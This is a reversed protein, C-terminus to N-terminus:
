IEEVVINTLETWEEGGPLVNSDDIICLTGTVTPLITFTYNSAIGYMNRTIPKTITSGDKQQAFRFQIRNNCTFRVQYKKNAIIKAIPYANDGVNNITTNL